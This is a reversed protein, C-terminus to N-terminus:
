AAVVRRATDRAGRLLGFALAAGSTHGVRLLRTLVRELDGADGHGALTDALAVAAPVGRGAAAEHLLAASLATTATAATELAAMPTARLEDEHHVALLWGALVDDGAPTLGPGRGLLEHPDLDPDVPPRVDRLLGALTEWPHGAGLWPRVVPPSWWRVVRVTVPGAVVHGDGVAAPDGVRVAAFPAAARDLGLRLACPLGVGDATEVAVVSSHAEGQDSVVYVCSPHVGVVRGPRSAGTLRPRAPLPAAAPLSAMRRGYRTASLRDGAQRVGVLAPPSVSDYCVLALDWVLPTHHAM